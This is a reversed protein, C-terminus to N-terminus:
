LRWALEKRLQEVEDRYYDRDYEAQDKEIDLNDQIEREEELMEKATDICTNLSNMLSKSRNEEEKLKKWYKDLEKGIATELERALDLDYDEAVKNILAKLDTLM